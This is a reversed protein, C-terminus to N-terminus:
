VPKALSTAPNPRRRGRVATATLAIAAFLAMAVLWCSYRYSTGPAILFLPLESGIGSLGLAAVLVDRRRIAVVLMGLTALLYLWPWFLWDVGAWRQWTRLPRQYWTPRDQYLDRGWADIGIWINHRDKPELQILEAFENARHALYAGPHARLLTWWARDIAARQADNDVQELVHLDWLHFVGLEPVYAAAITAQIDSAPKFPTGALLERAEDDDIPPACAIMGAVDWVQGADTWPHTHVDTLARNVGFGAATVALWAGLAVAYRHRRSTVEPWRFLLLIPAFTATFANHRMASALALAALGALQGRRGGRALLAIGLTAYGLLQSDKWIVALVSSVPPFWTVLVAVIAAAPPLLWRRLLLYVGAVFAASQLVFMGYPGAWVHEVLRWLAAMAPPHWDTYDGSRAQRLQEVSDFSLFGPYAYVALVTWGVVLVAFPAIQKVRALV